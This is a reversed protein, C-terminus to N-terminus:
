VGASDLRKSTTHPCVGHISPLQAPLPLTLWCHGSSTHKMPSSCPTMMLTWLVVGWQRFATITREADSGNAKSRQIQSSATCPALTLTTTDGVGPPLCNRWKKGMKLAKTGQVYCCKCSYFTTAPLTNSLKCLYPNDGQARCLALNFSKEQGDPLKVQMRSRGPYYKLFDEAIMDVIADLATKEPRGEIIAIPRYSAKSHSMSGPLDLCRVAIISVTRSGFNLINVGDGGLEFTIIVFHEESNLNMLIELQKKMAPTSFLAAPGERGKGLNARFDPEDFLSDLIDQLPWM